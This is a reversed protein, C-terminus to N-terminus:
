LLFWEESYQLAPLQPPQEDTASPMPAPRMDHTLRNSLKGIEPFAKSKLRAGALPKHGAARAPPCVTVKIETPAPNPPTSQVNPVNGRCKRSRILSVASATLGYTDAIERQLREDSRIARVEDATLESPIRSRVVDTKLQSLERFRPGNQHYLPHSTLMTLYTYM